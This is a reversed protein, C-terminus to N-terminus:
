KKNKEKNHQSWAIKFAKAPDGPFKKKLKKVLGEKGPPAEEELPDENIIAGMPVTRGRMGYSGDVFEDIFKDLEENIQDTDTQDNEVDPNIFGMQIVDEAEINGSPMHLNRIANGFKDYKPKIKVNENYYKFTPFNESQTSLPKYGLEKLKDSIMFWILHDEFSIGSDPSKQNLFPRLLMEINTDYVLNNQWYEPLNSKISKDLMDVHTLREKGLDITYRKNDKPNLKRVGRLIGNIKYGVHHPYKLDMYRIIHISGTVEDKRGRSRFGIAEGISSSVYKPNHSIEKPTDVIIQVVKNMDDIDETQDALWNVYKKAQGISTIRHLSLNGEISPILLAEDSDPPIVYFSYFKNTYAYGRRADKPQKAVFFRGNRYLPAEENRPSEFGPIPHGVPSFDAPDVTKIKIPELAEIILKRLKAKTIKM